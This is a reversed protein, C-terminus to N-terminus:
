KRKKRKKRKNRRKKKKAQNTLNDSATNLKDEQNIESSSKSSTDAQKSDKQEAQKLNQYEFAKEYEKLQKIYVIIKSKAKLFKSKLVDVFSPKAQKEEQISAVKESNNISNSDIEVAKTDLKDSVKVSVDMHPNVAEKNISIQFTLVSDGNENAFQALPVVVGGNSHAANSSSEPQHIFVYDEEDEPRIILYFILAPFNLIFVVLFLIYPLVSNKYRKKADFYIWVAFLLWLSLLYVLSYTLISRYDINLELIELLFDFM